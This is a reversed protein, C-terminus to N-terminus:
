LSPWALAAGEDVDLVAAPAMPRRWPGAGRAAGRGADVIEDDSDNSESDRFSSEDSDLQLLIVFM